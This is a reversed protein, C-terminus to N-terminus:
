SVRCKGSGPAPSPAAKKSAPAREKRSLHIVSGRTKSNILAPVCDKGRFANQFVKDPPISRGGTCQPTHPFVSRSRKLNVPQIFFKAPLVMVGWKPPNLKLMSWNIPSGSYQFLFNSPRKEGQHQLVQGPRFAGTRHNQPGARRCGVREAHAVLGASEPFKIVSFCSHM